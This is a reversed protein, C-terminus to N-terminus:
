DVTIDVRQDLYIYRIDGDSLSNIQQAATKLVSTDTIAPNINAVSYETPNTNSDVIGIVFKNSVLRAM